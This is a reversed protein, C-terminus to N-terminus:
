WQLSGEFRVAGDGEEVHGIPYAEYGAQALTDAIAAAEDSAVVAVMGVGLNYTRIMEPDPVSGAERIARFVPLVRVRGLDVRATVGGPLIRRLNDGIGGGTIHALGHLGPHRFISRLGPLYCLHPRLIAELFPEGGGPGEVPAHALQPDDALLRRVLTYGNTHLGNSALALLTDGPRIRSGDIVHEKEVIGILAASLVYTGPALVGPQESTEGGVLPFGLDDCARRLGDVIAVVVDHELKGCVITDLMALPEAGMVAVDNVIHNVLDYCLSEVRGHQLALLQKSGPEEMKLVLVPHKYAEFRADYLSGFAGLANLVGARPGGLLAAMKRKAADATDIDVGAEKYSLPKKVSDMRGM